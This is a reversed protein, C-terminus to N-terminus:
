SVTVYHKKLVRTLPENVGTLLLSAHNPPEVMKFFMMGALEEQPPYM